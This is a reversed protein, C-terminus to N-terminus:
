VEPALGKMEIGIRYLLAEFLEKTLVDNKFRCRVRLYGTFDGTVLVGDAPVTDFQVRDSNGDGGGVLISYGSGQAVGDLYIVQASTDKGPIDFTGIVADGIGIYEETYSYTQQASDILYFYFAEYSGKRAVFFQWLVDVDASSLNDFKATIDYKPFLWKRRRQEKGSDFASTLTKFTTSWQLPYVPIPSTPFVLM